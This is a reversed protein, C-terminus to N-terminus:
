SSTPSECRERKKLNKLEGKAGDGVLDFAADYLKTQDSLFKFKAKNIGKRIESGIEGGEIGSEKSYKKLWSIIKNKISDM